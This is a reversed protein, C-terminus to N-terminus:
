IDIRSNLRSDKELIIGPRVAGRDKEKAQAALAEKAEKTEKTEKTAMTSTLWSPIIM